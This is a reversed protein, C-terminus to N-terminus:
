RTPYPLKVDFLRVNSVKCSYFHGSLNNQTEEVFCDNYKADIGKLRALFECSIKLAGALRNVLGDFFM